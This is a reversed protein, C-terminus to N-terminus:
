FAGAMEILAAHAVRSRRHLVHKGLPTSISFALDTALATLARFIGAM